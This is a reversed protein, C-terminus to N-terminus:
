GTQILFESDDLGIGIPVNLGIGIPVNLGIGIPVDLGIGIPVDMTVGSASGINEFHSPNLLAADSM